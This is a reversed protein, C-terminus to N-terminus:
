PKFPAATTLGKTLRNQIAADMAAAGVEALVGTATWIIFCRVRKAPFIRGLLLKYAALQTLERAPIDNGGAPPNGTKLDALLVESNSVALRDVRGSLVIKRGDEAEVAGALAVEAQSGPGFLPALGPRGLVATVDKVLALAQDATLAERSLLRLGAAMREEDRVDPLLEFLRHMLIGRRRALGRAIGPGPDPQRAAAELARSPNLPPAEAFEPPAAATMWCELCTLDPAVGSSGSHAAPRMAPQGMVAVLGTGDEAQVETLGAGGKLPSLATEIMEQWVTKGPSPKTNKREYGCIMLQDRPRTLAVYLLRRYEEWNAARAAERLGTVAAPDQKQSPSWIIATPLNSGQAPRLLHLKPDHAPLPASTTDAVFVIRAELGKAAHVTLIRVARTQTEMDRKIERATNQLADIFGSLSATNSGAYTQADSLVADIAEAADPGLRGTLDRYGGGSGLVEAYFGYPTERAAIEAWSTLKALAAAGPGSRALQDWLSGARSAALDFLAAESLGILPSRLLAALALDDERNLMVQGLAILDKVAIHDTLTLRDAGAVPVGEQKLASLMAEFFADRKRVLIMIDGASVADGGDTFAMRQELWFRIRRAIRLALMQHAPVVHPPPTRVDGEERKVSPVLPWVEVRGPAGTRASTHVTRQGDGATLGSFNEPPKFVGDLAELLHASTRFSHQLEVDNFDRGAHLAARKFHAKAAHFGAPDVGQFSYISQKEDGVAFVSRRFAAQGDGSFFDDTLKKIIQWQAPNTDQAEDVLVHDIGGDLKYLVWASETQELLRRAREIMDDFDLLGRRLKAAQIRQHVSAALAMLAESREAAAASNRLDLLSHVRSMEGELLPKLSADTKDLRQTLVPKRATLAQTLFVQRYAHAKARLPGTAHAARLRVALEVDKPSGKTAREALGPWDAQPLGDEVTQRDAERVSMGADVGLSPRIASHLAEWSEGSVRQLKVADRIVAGLNDINTERGIIAAAQGLQGAPDRQAQRLASEIAGRMMESADMEDLVTFNAPVNAELPFVHLLRECFAHITQIKLGGPTELAVAFIRRAAALKAADPAAGEIESVAASLAQDPLMVWASLTDFVRAQMNAAAAKTFTLCLIREPKVGALLLRIVRQTLVYTKGSGANASVWASARPDTALAQATKTAADVTLAAKM